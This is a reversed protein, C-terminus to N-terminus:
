WLTMPSWSPFPCKYSTLLEKPLQWTGPSATVPKQSVHAPMFGRTVSCLGSMNQPPRWGEASPNKTQKNKKWLSTLIPERKQSGSVREMRLGWLSSTSIPAFPFFSRHDPVEMWSFTPDPHMSAPRSGDVSRRSITGHSDAPSLYGCIM